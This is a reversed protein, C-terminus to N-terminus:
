RAHRVVVEAARRVMLRRYTPILVGRAPRRAVVRVPAADLVAAAVATAEAKALAAGICHHQGAGFWLGSAADRARAPDFGGPARTCNYTAIVVREGPRVHWRGLQAPAAVSRLMAPSPTTLRLAEELAAPLLSRDAAVADLQGAQEGRGGDLSEAGARELRQERPDPGLQRDPALDVQDIHGPHRGPRHHALQEADPHRGAGGGLGPM